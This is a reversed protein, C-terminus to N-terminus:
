VSLSSDTPADSCRVRANLSEKRFCRTVRITCINKAGKNLTKTNTATMIGSKEEIAKRWTISAMCNQIGQEFNVNEIDIERSQHDNRLLM